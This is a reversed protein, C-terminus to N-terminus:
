ATGSLALTKMTTLDGGRRSQSLWSSPTLFVPLKPNIATAFDLALDVIVMVLAEGCDEGGVHCAVRTQHARILFSRVFPEFRM